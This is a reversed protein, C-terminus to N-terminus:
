TLLVYGATSTFGTKLGDVGQYYRVLKNTNVLWFSNETNKRLYDENDQLYSLIEEYTHTELLTNIEKFLATNTVKRGFIENILNYTNDKIEKQAM